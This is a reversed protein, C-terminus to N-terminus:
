QEHLNENLQSTQDHPVNSEAMLWYQPIWDTCVTRLLALLNNVLM